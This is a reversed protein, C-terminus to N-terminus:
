YFNEFHISTEADNLSEILDAFAEDFGDGDYEDFDSDDGMMVRGKGDV